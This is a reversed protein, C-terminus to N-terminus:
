NTATIQRAAQQRRGENHKMELYENREMEHLQAPYRAIGAYWDRLRKEFQDQVPWSLAGLYAEVALYCRMANREIMGRTGAIYIPRGDAQNGAVSFGVKKRGITALYVQTLSRAAASSDYSYSLHLFSRGADLAVVEVLIRYNSTGMPGQAANLVVQLYDPQSSVVEYAFEFLPADSVPQDFKRGINVSLTDASNKTSARCQKVNLHLILIDCWQDMRQMAPGVVGFDQEILAHIDGKLSGSRESSELHLPRKFPNSALAERLAAHRAKLSAADQAHAAPM